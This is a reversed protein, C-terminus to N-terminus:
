LSRYTLFCWVNSVATSISSSIGRLSKKGKHLSTTSREDGYWFNVADPSKGLAESAFPIHAPVDGMLEEYETMLNGNQLQIYRVEQYPDRRPVAPSTTTQPETDENYGHARTQQTRIPMGDLFQSFTMKKECPMAFYTDDVVADAWGNPTCAM